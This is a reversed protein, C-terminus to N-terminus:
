EGRLTAWALSSAPVPCQARTMDHGKHSFRPSALSQLAAQQKLNNPVSGQVRM